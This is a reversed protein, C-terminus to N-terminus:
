LKIGMLTADTYDINHDKSFKMIYEDSFAIVKILNAKELFTGKIFKKISVYRTVLNTKFVFKKDKIGLVWYLNTNIVRGIYIDYFM